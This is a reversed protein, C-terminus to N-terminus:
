TVKLMMRSHQVSWRQAQLIGNPDAAPQGILLVDETGNTVRENFTADGDQRQVTGAVRFPQLSNAFGDPTRIRVHNQVSHHRVFQSFKAGYKLFPLVKGHCQHIPPGADIPEGSICIIENEPIVVADDHAAPQGPEHGSTRRRQGRQRVFYGTVTGDAGHETQGRQDDRWEPVNPFAALPPKFREGRFNADWKKNQPINGQVVAVRLRDGTFINKLRFTGYGLSLLVVFTALM